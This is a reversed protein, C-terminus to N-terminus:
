LAIVSKSIAQSVLRQQLDGADMDRPHHRYHRAGAARKRRNHDSEENSIRESARNAGTVIRQSSWSKLGTSAL